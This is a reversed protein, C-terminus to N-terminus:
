TLLLWDLGQNEFKRFDKDFTVLRLGGTIAFAALYADMWLKPSATETEALQRWVGELSRRRLSARAARIKMERVLDEPLDLTMKM